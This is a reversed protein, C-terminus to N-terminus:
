VGAHTSFHTLPLIFFTWEEQNGDVQFILVCKSPFAGCMWWVLEVCVLPTTKHLYTYGLFSLPKKFSAFQLAGCDDRMEEIYTIVKNSNPDRCCKGKFISDRQGGWFVLRADLHSASIPFIPLPASVPIALKGKGKRGSGYGLHRIGILFFFTPQSSKHFFFPPVGLLAVWLM